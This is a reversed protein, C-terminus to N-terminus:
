NLLFILVIIDCGRYKNPKDIEHFSNGYRLVDIDLLDEEITVVQPLQGLLKM